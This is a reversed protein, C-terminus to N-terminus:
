RSMPSSGTACSSRAGRHDRNAEAEHEMSRTGDRETVWLEHLDDDRMVFRAVACIPWSTASSSHAAGLPIAALNTTFHVGGIAFAIWRAIGAFGRRGASAGKRRM